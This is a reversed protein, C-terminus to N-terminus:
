DMQISYMVNIHLQGYDKRYAWFSSNISNIRKDMHYASTLRYKHVKGQATVQTKYINSTKM